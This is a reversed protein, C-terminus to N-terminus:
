LYQKSRRKDAQRKTCLIIWFTVNENFKPFLYVISFFLQNFKPFNINTRTINTVITLQQDGSIVRPTAPTHV